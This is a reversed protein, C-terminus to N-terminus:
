KYLFDQAGPMILILTGDFDSQERKLFILIREGRWGVTNSSDGYPPHGFKETLKYLEDDYGKFPIIIAFLKGNAFEASAVLPGYFCMNGNAEPIRILYTEVSTSAISSTRKNVFKVDYEGEIDYLPRGWTLDGLGMYKQDLKEAAFAQLTFSFFAVCVLFFISLKNLRVPM